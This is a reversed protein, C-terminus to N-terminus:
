ASVMSRPSAPRGFHPLAALFGAGAATAMAILAGALPPKVTMLFVIGILISTRVLFSALLVPDRRDDRNLTNQLRAIRPGTTAAGIAGTAILGLLAVDIWATRWGWVTATLYLGSLLTLLLGPIAVRPVLRFDDLATRLQASEASRRIQRLVAGDIALAGFVGIASAVHIFVLVTRVM